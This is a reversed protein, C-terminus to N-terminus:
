HRSMTASGLEMTCQWIPMSFFDDVYSWLIMLSYNSQCYHNTLNATPWKSDDTCSATAHTGMHRKNTECTMLNCRTWIICTPSRFICFYLCAWFWIIPGLRPSVFSGEKNLYCAKGKLTKSSLVELSLFLNCWETSCVDKIMDNELHVSGFKHLTQNSWVNRVKTPKNM